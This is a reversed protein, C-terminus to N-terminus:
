HAQGCNCWLVEIIKGIDYCAINRLLPNHKMFKRVEDFHVEEVVNTINEINEEWLKINVESLQLYIAEFYERASIEGKRYGNRIEQLINKKEKQETLSKIYIRLLARSRDRKALYRTLKKIYIMDNEPIKYPSESTTRPESIRLITTIKQVAKIFRMHVVNEVESYETIIDTEKREEETPERDFDSCLSLNDGPSKNTSDGITANEKIKGCEKDTIKSKDYLLFTQEIAEGEKIQINM